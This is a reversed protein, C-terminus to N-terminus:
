IAAIHYMPFRHYKVLRRTLSMKYAAQIKAACFHRLAKEENTPGSPFYQSRKFKNMLRAKATISKQDQATLSKLKEGSSAIPSVTNLPSGITSLKLESKLMKTGKRLGIYRRFNRQILAAALHQAAM